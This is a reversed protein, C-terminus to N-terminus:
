GAPMMEKAMTARPSIPNRMEATASLLPIKEEEAPLEPETNTDVDDSSGESMKRM